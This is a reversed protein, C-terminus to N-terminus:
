LYQKQISILLHNGSILRVSEGSSVKQETESLKVDEWGHLKIFDAFSKNNAFRLSLLVNDKEDLIMATYGSLDKFYDELEPHGNVIGLRGEALVCNNKVPDILDSPLLGSLDIDPEPIKGAIVISIRIMILSDQLTGNRNIVSVYWPGKCFQLQYRTQCSFRAFPLTGTCRYKSVSFIGFAEEPGSMKYVEIKYEGKNLTLETVAAKSFGYELYLEAGGDIYGFLSSGSFERYRSFEAGPLDNKDIAPFGPPAQSFLSLHCSFILFFITLRPVRYPTRHAPHIM